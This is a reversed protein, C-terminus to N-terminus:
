KNISNVFDLQAKTLTNLATTMQDTTSTKLDRIGTAVTIATTFTSKVGQSVQGSAIGVTKSAILINANVIALNLPVSAKTANYYVTLSYRIAKTTGDTAIPNDRTSVGTAIYSKLNTQVALSIQGDANGVTLQTNLLSDATIATRLDRKDAVNAVFATRPAVLNNMATAVQTYTVGATQVTTQSNQLATLYNTRITPLYENLNYGAVSSNAILLQASIYATSNSLYTAFDAPLITSKFTAKATKLSALADQVQRDITTILDRTVVALGIASSFQTKDVQLVNGAANGVVVSNNFNTAAVISDNLEKLDAINIKARFAKGPVALSFNGAVIQSITVGPSFIITSDAKLAALYTAKFGAFSASSAVAFDGKKYSVKCSDVFLKEAKVFKGFQDIYQDLTKPTVIIPEDVTCSSLSFGLLVILLFIKEIYKM